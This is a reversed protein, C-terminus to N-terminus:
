IRRCDQGMSSGHYRNKYENVHNFVRLFFPTPPPMTGANNILINLPQGTAIFSEAFARVSQLSGLELIGGINFM